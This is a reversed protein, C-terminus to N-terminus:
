IFSSPQRGPAARKEALKRQRAILFLPFMVSIAIIASLVIYLAVFRVNLRRAEFVMFICAAITLMLLDNSFSAAAPNSYAARFFGAMMGNDPQAMFALNYSWTAFLAIVAIAAYVACLIKESRTM